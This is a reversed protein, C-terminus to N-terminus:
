PRGEPSKESEASTAPRVSEAWKEVRARVDKPLPPDNNYDTLAWDAEMDRVALLKLRSRKVDALYVVLRQRSTDVLCVLVSGDSLAATSVVVDRSSSSPAIGGGGMEAFAASGAGRSGMLGVGVLALGMGLLGAALYWTRPSVLMGM